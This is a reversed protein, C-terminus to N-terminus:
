RKVLDIEDGATRAIDRWDIADAATEGCSEVVLRRYRGPATRELRLAWSPTGTPEEAARFRVTKVDCRSAELERAYLAVDVWGTHVTLTELRRGLPSEFFEGFSSPHLSRAPLYPAPRACDECCQAGVEDFQHHRPNSGETLLMLDLSRLTPAHVQALSAWVGWMSELRLGLHRLSKLEVRFGALEALLAIDVAHLSELQKSAQVLVLPAHTLERIAALMPEAALAHAEDGTMPRLACADLLGDRFDCSGPVVHPAVSAPLWEHGRRKALATAERSLGSRQLRAHEGRPDGSELLLDVYVSRLREDDPSVLLELLLEDHRM